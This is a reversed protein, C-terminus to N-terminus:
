AADAVKALAREINTLNPVRRGRFVHKWFAPIETHDGSSQAHILAM